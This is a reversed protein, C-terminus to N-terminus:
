TKRKILERPNRPSPMWGGLASQPVITRSFAVRIVNPLMTGAIGAPATARRASATLKTMSQIRTIVVLASRHRRLLGRYPHLTTTGTAACGIGTILDQPDLIQPDLRGTGAARNGNDIANTQGETTALDEAEDALAAGTLRRDAKRRQAKSPGTAH